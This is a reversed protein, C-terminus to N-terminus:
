AVFKTGCEYCSEDIRRCRTIELQYEAGNPLKIAIRELPFLQVPSLFGLGQRSLDKTYVGLLSEDRKLIAKGRMFFRHYTRKNDLHVPTPGQHAFYEECVSEPLRANADTEAWLDTAVGQEYSVDLM